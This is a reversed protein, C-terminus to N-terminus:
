GAKDSLNFLIDKIDKYDIGTKIKNRSFNDPLPKQEVFKKPHATELFIGKAEKHLGIFQQLAYYGVAGHPDLQYKYNEFVEKIAQRTESDSVSVSSMMQKLNEIEGDFIEMIRIFNNPDGVDM